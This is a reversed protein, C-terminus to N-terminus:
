IVKPLSSVNDLIYDPGTSGLVDRNRIGSLVAVSILKLRKAVEIDAETDGVVLAQEGDALRKKILAVKTSAADNTAPSILLEKFCSFINLTRLQNVANQYNERLSVLYLDNGEALTNLVRVTSEFNQDLSLKEPKEIGEKFRERFNKILDHSVQSQKLVEILDTKNRKLDWYNDKSLPHGGLIGVIERYTQWHRNSYDILTGDLDFFIKM